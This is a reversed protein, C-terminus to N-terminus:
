RRASWAQCTWARASSEYMVTNLPPRRAWSLAESVLRATHGNVSMSPVLQAVLQPKLRYMRLGRKKSEERLDPVTFYMLIVRYVCLGEMGRM